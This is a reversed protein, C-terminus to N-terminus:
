HKDEFAVGSSRYHIKINSLLEEAGGEVAKTHIDEILQIVTRFDGEIVTELPGVKHRLGSAQITELAHDVFGGTHDERNNPILQIGALVTTM